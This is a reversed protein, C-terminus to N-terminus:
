KFFHQTLSIAYISAEGWTVGNQNETIPFILAKSKGDTDNFTKLHILNDRLTFVFDEIIVLQNDRSKKFPYLEINKAVSIINNL